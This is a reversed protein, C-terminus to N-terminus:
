FPRDPVKRTRYAQIREIGEDGSHVGADRSRLEKGTMVAFSCQRCLTCQPLMWIIQRQQPDRRCAMCKCPLHRVRSFIDPANTM